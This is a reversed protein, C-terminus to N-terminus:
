SPHHLNVCTVPSARTTEDMRTLVARYSPPDTTTRETDNRDVSETSSPLTPPDETRPEYLPSTFNRYGPPQIYSSNVSYGEEHRQHRSYFQRLFNPAVGTDDIVDRTYSPPSEYITERRSTPTPTRPCLGCTNTRVPVMELSEYYPPALPIESDSMVSAVDTQNRRAQIRRMLKKWTQCRCDVAFFVISFLMTLTFFAVLLSYVVHWNISKRKAPRRCLSFDKPEDKYVGESEPPCNYHSDCRLNRSICLGVPNPALKPPRVCIMYNRNIRVAYEPRGGSTTLAVIVMQFSYQEYLCRYVPTLTLSLDLYTKGVETKDQGTTMYVVTINDPWNPIQEYQNKAGSRSISIEHLPKFNVGTTRYFFRLTIHVPHRRKTDGDTQYAKAHNVHIALTELTKSTPIQLAIACPGNSSTQQQGGILPTPTETKITFAPNERSFMLYYVNANSFSEVFGFCPPLVVITTQGCAQTMWNLSVAYFFLFLCNRFLYDDERKHYEM